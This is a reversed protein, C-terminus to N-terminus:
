RLLGQGLTCSQMSGIDTRDLASLSINRHVVDVAESRRKPDIGDIQELRDLRRVSTSSSGTAFVTYLLATDRTPCNSHRHTLEAARALDEETTPRRMKKEVVQANRFADIAKLYEQRLARMQHINLPEEREAGTVGILQRVRREVANVRKEVASHGVGFEKAVVSYPTGELVRVLMALGRASSNSSM